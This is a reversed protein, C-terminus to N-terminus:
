VVTHIIPQAVFCSTISFRDISNDIRLQNFLDTPSSFPELFTNLESQNAFRNNDLNTVESQWLYYLNMGKWVFDKTQLNFPVENDDITECALFLFPILIFLLLKKM